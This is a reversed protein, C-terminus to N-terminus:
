INNQLTDDSFPSDSLFFFCGSFSIMYEVLVYHYCTKYRYQTSLFSFMYHCCSFSFLIIFYLLIQWQPHVSGCLYRVNTSRIARSPSVSQCLLLAYKVNTLQQKKPVEGGRVREREEYSVRSAQIFFICSILFFVFHSQVNGHQCGIKTSFSMQSFHRMNRVYTFIIFILLVHIHLIYIESLAKRRFSYNTPTNSQSM